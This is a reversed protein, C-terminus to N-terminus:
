GVNRSIFNGDFACAHTGAYSVQSWKYPRYGLVRIFRYFLRYLTDDKRSLPSSLYVAGLFVTTTILRARNVLVSSALHILQSVTLSFDAYCGFDVHCFETGQITEIPHQKTTINITRNSAPHTPVASASLLGPHPTCKKLQSYNGHHPVLNNGFPHQCLPPCSTPMQCHRTTDHADPTSRRYRFFCFM